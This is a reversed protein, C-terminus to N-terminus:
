LSQHTGHGSYNTKHMSITSDAQKKMQLATRRLSSGHDLSTPTLVALALPTNAHAAAINPLPGATATNPVAAV